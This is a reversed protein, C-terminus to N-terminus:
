TSEIYEFIGVTGACSQISFQVPTEQAEYALLAAFVMRHSTAATNTFRVSTGGCENNGSAQLYATFSGDPAVQIKYVTGTYWAANAHSTVLALVVAIAPFLRRM